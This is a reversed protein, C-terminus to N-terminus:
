GLTSLAEHSKTNKLSNQLLYEATIRPAANLSKYKQNM